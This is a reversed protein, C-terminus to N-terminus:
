CSRLLLLLLLLPLQLPLASPLALWPALPPSDMKGFQAVCPLGSEAHGLWVLGTVPQEHSTGASVHARLCPQNTPRCSGGAKLSSCALAASMMRKWVEDPWTLM